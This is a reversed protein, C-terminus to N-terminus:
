LESRIRSLNEFTFENKLFWYMLLAENWYPNGGSFTSNLHIVSIKKILINKKRTDTM